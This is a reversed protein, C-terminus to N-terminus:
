KPKCAIWVHVQWAIHTSHQSEEKGYLTQIRKNIATVQQVCTNMTRPFTKVPYKRYHSIEKDIPLSVYFLVFM